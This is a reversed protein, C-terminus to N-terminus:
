LSVSLKTQKTGFRYILMNSNDHVTYTLENSINIIKSHIFFFNIVLFMIIDFTLDHGLALLNPPFKYDSIDQFDCCNPRHNSDLYSTVNSIDPFSTMLSRSHGTNLDCELDSM